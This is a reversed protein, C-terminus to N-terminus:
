ARRVAANEREKVQMPFNALKWIARFMRLNGPISGPGDAALVQWGGKIDLLLGKWFPYKVYKRTDHIEKAPSVAIRLGKGLFHDNIRNEFQFRDTDKFPVRYFQEKDLIRTGSVAPSSKLLSRFVWPQSGKDMIVMDLGQCYTEILACLHHFGLNVLDADCFLITSHAAEAVGRMAAKTKGLNVPLAIVKVGDVTGALRATDDTSGDSVVIIERIAPVGKLCGLVNLINKEENYAPIIASINM